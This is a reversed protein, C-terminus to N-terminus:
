SYGCAERCRTRGSEIRSGCNVCISYDKLKSSTAAGVMIKAVNVFNVSFAEIVRSEVDTAESLRGLDDFIDENLKQQSTNLWKCSTLFHLKEQNSIEENNLFSGALHHCLEVVEKANSIESSSSLDILSASMKKNLYPFKPHGGLFEMTSSYTEWSPLGQSSLFKALLASVKRTSERRSLELRKSEAEQLEFISEKTERTARAVANSLERVHSEDLNELEQLHAAEVLEIKRQFEDRQSELQERLREVQDPHSKKSKPSTTSAKPKPTEKSSDSNADISALRREVEASVARRIEAAKNERSISRIVLFPFVVLVLFGLIPGILYDVTLFWGVTSSSARLM